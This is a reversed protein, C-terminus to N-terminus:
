DEENWGSSSYYRRSCYRCRYVMEEITMLLYLNPNAQSSPVGINMTQLNVKSEPDMVTSKTVLVVPELTSTQPISNLGWYREIGNHEMWLLAPAM